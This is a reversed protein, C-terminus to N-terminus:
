AGERGRELERRALHPWNVTAGDAGVEVARRLLALSRVGWARVEPPPAGGGGGRRLLLARRAAAVGERTAANARPCVGTLGGEEEFAAIAELTPEDLEQVLWHRRLWSPPPPPPPPPSAPAGSTAAASSSSPAAAAAQAAVEKGLRRLQELHFSTLTLGPVSGCAGEVSAAHQQPEQQPEARGEARGGAAAAAQAAAEELDARWGTRELADLVARALGPQRSKLELHIHARGRYRLLVEDLSPARRSLSSAAAAAPSAAADGDDERAEADPPLLFGAGGEERGARWWAGADLAQLEALTCEAVQPGPRGVVDSPDAAETSKDDRAAAAAAAVPALTRGVTEDHLVVLRGDRTLQVDTEFHALGRELALDFAALTNEPALASLGRHAILTFDPKSTSPPHHARPPAAAAESPHM